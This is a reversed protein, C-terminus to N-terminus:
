SCNQLVFDGFGCSSYDFVGCHTCSFPKEGTHKRMHRTLNGSLSFCEVCHCDKFSKKERKQGCINPDEVSNSGSHNNSTEGWDESDDTDSESCLSRQQDAHLSTDFDSAPNPGGCKDGDAETKMQQTSSCCGLEDDESEVVTLSPQTAEEMENKVKEEKILPPEQGEQSSSCEQQETADEEKMKQVGLHPGLEPLDLHLFSCTWVADTGPKQFGTHVLQKSM